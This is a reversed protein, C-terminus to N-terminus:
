ITPSEATEEIDAWMAHFEVALLPLAFDLWVGSGFLHFSFPLLLLLLVLSSAVKAPFSKLRPFFLTTVIILTVAIALKTGISIPKAEGFQLLSHLANIIVMTGSMQGLPTTHNDGSEIHDAGIVVVHGRLDETPPVSNETIMRASMFELLPQNVKKQWAITPYAEGERLSAPLTYLIRKSLENGYLDIKIKSQGVNLLAHKSDGSVDRSDKCYDALYPQLASSIAATADENGTLLMAALLHLSPLVKVQCTNTALDKKGTAEWWRVRRLVGDEDEDFFPSAWHIHSQGSVIADLFSAREEFFQSGSGPAARRLGRVLLIHAPPKGNFRTAYSGLYDMLESDPEGSPRSLEVDVIILAAGRDVGYEILKKLKDRPTFLPEDWERYTAEDIRLFTVPRLNATSSHPVGRYINIMWDFGADEAARLLKANHFFLMLLTIAIGVLITRGARPLSTWCSILSSFLRAM